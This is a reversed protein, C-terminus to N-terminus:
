INSIELPVPADLLFRSYTGCKCKIVYCGHTDERGKGNLITRCQKCYLICGDRVLLRERDRKEFFDSLIKRLWLLM